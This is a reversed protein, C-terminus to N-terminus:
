LSIESIKMPASLRAMASAQFLIWRAEGHPIKESELRTVAATHAEKLAKQDLTAPYLKSLEEVLPRYDTWFPTDEVTLGAKRALQGLAFPGSLPWVNDRDRASYNAAAASVFRYKHYPEKADPILAFISCIGAIEEYSAGTIKPSGPSFKGEEVMPDSSHCTFFVVPANLSRLALIMNRTCQLLSGYHKWTIEDTKAAKLIASMEGSLLLTVDDIVIGKSAEPQTMARLINVVEGMRVARKIKPLTRDLGSWGFASELCSTDGIWVGRPVLECVAATKGSGPEGYILYNM